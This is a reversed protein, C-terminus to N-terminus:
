DDIHILKMRGSRGSKISVRSKPVGFRAAVLTMLEANAKGEAPPSKLRAQWSGDEAQEIESVRANQKVKVLIKKM